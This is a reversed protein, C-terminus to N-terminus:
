SAIEAEEDAFVPQRQLIAALTQALDFAQQRLEPVAISELLTGLRSPGLTFLNSSARGLNDILAGERDTRLGGGLPGPTVIGQAFLKKLLPSHVRRYDLSPGTCNIVRATHFTAPGNLTHLTVSAQGNQLTVGSVRGQRLILTGADIEAQLTAAIPPAMRHRVVDWRRQLHRRFRKRERLPLRLWLDNTTSRLSDIAARWNAGNRIATRLARLYAVCTATTELPIASSALPTYPAHHTPFVSHRSVATIPGRHGTERLRLLVDIATLGTGIITVPAEPALGSYASAKWANHFYAGALEAAPEIGPLSAPDFNGIALVTYDATLKRGDELTLRAGNPIPRYDIVHGHWTEVGQAKGFIHQIYRGFVARPAFTAPTAHPDHNARLWLLFHDPQHPLASMKGAPVNLLHRLSPTSYALGLGFAPQQGIVIIRAGTHQQALHYATLTGSVGGGLIAITKTSQTAYVM